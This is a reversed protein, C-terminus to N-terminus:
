HRTPELANCGCGWAATNRRWLRRELRAKRTWTDPETWVFQLPIPAAPHWPGMPHRENGCLPTETLAKREADVAGRVAEAGFASGFGAAGLGVGRGIDKAITMGALAANMSPSSTTLGFPVDPLTGAGMVTWAGSLIQGRLQGVTADGLVLAGTDADHVDILGPIETPSLHVNM